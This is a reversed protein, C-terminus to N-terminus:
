GDHDGTGNQEIDVVEVDEPNIERAQEKGEALAEHAKAISEEPIDMEREMDSESKLLQYVEKKDKWKEPAQNILWFITLSAAAEGQVIQRFVADEVKRLRIAKQKQKAESVAQEFEPDEMQWDWITGPSLRPYKQKDIDRGARRAAEEITIAEANILKGESNRYSADGRLYELFRRKVDEKREQAEPKHDGCRGENVPRQCPEDRGDGDYGCIGDEGDSM